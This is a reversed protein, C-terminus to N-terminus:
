YLEIKQKKENTKQEEEEGKVSAVNMKSLEEESFLEAFLDETSESTEEIQPQQATQSPATTIEAPEASEPPNSDGFINAFPSASTENSSEPQNTFVDHTDGVLNQLMRVVKRIDEHSDEKTDISIKM